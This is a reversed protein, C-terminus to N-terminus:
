SRGCSGKAQVIDARTVAGPSQREIGGPTMQEVSFATQRLTVDNLYTAGGSM